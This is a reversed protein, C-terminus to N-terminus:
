GWYVFPTGYCMGELSSNQSEIASSYIEEEDDNSSEVAADTALDVLNLGPGRATTMEVAPPPM